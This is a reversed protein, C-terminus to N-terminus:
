VDVKFGLDVESAPIGGRIGWNDLPIDHLVIFVDTARIGLAELKTVIGRYLARKADLSRGSFISIEVLIYNESKEPSVQFDDPHYERFRIDRDDEPIKFADRMASHVADMIEKKRSSNRPKRTEIKVLPM